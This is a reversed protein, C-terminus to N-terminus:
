KSKPNPQFLRAFEALDGDEIDLPQGNAALYWVGYDMKIKDRSYFRRGDIRNQEEGFKEWCQPHLAYFKGYVANMRGTKENKVKDIIFKEVTIKIGFDYLRIVSNKSGSDTIINRPDIAEKKQFGFRYQTPNGEVPVIDRHWYIDREEIWSKLSEFDIPFLYPARVIIPREGVHGVALPRYKNQYGFSAIYWDECGPTDMWRIKLGFNSATLPKHCLVANEIRELISAM